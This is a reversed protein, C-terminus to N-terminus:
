KDKKKTIYKFYSRLHILLFKLSKSSTREWKHVVYAQPHFIIKGYKRVRDSLDADELYMFFREDFGNCKKFVDTRLMMFCGTCFEIETPESFDADAMTYENRLKKFCAGYKELRGGFMYKFCPRRKPLHQESGDDNMIKPTVLSVDSHVDLYEALYKLVNTNIIIDPNIIAHYRSNIVPIAQNHGHGYGNNVNSEIVTVEPFKEKVLSVTNDTSMNDIVTVQFTINKTNAFISSLLNCIEDESNYTVIGISVDYM